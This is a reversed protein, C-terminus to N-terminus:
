VLVEVGPVDAALWLLATAFSCVGCTAATIRMGFNCVILLMRAHPSRMLLECGPPHGTGCCAFPSLQWPLMATCGRCCLASCFLVACCRMGHCCLRPDGPAPRPGEPPRIYVGNEAALWVPLDEFTEELRGMESGSFVLVENGPDACLEQLCCWAPLAVRGQAAAAPPPRLEAGPHHQHQVPSQWSPRASGSIYQRAPCVFADPGAAAVLCLRWRAACFGM